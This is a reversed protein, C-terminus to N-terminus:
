NCMDCLQDLNKLYEALFKDFTELFWPILIDALVFGIILLVVPIILFSFIGFKTLKDSHAM